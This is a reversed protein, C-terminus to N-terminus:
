DAFLLQYYRIMAAIRWAPIDRRHQIWVGGGLSRIDDDDDDDEDDDDEEYDRPNIARPNMWVGGGMSVNEEEEEEEKEKTGRPLATWMSGDASLFGWEAAKKPNCSPSNYGGANAVQFSSTYETVIAAQNEQTVRNVQTCCRPCMHTGPHEQQSVSSSPAVTATTALATPLGQKDKRQKIDEATSQSSFPTCAKLKEADELFPQMKQRVEDGSFWMKFHPSNLSADAMLRHNPEIGHAALLLVLLYAPDERSYLMSKLEKETPMKTASFLRKPWASLGNVMDKLCSMACYGKKGSPQSPEKFWGTIM